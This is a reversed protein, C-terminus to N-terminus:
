RVIIVPTQVDAIIDDEWTIAKIPRLTETMREKDYEFQVEYQVGPRGEFFLSWYGDEWCENSIDFAQNHQNDSLKDLTDKLIARRKVIEGKSAFALRITKMKGPKTTELKSLYGNHLNSKRSRQVKERGGKNWYWDKWKSIPIKEM